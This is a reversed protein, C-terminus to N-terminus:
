RLKHSAAQERISAQPHVGGSDPGGTETVRGREGAQEVLQPIGRIGGLYGFADLLHGRM